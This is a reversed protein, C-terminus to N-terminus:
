SSSPQSRPHGRTVPAGGRGEGLAVTRQDVPGPELEVGSGASGAVPHDEVADEVLGVHEEVAGVETVGLAVEEGVGVLDRVEGAEARARSEGDLHGAGLRLVPAGLAVQGADELVPVAHVRRPVRAAQPAADADLPRTRHPDVAHPHQASVGFGLPGVDRDAGLEVAVLGAGDPDARGDVGGDLSLQLLGQSAPVLATSHVNPTSLGRRHHGATRPSWGRDVRSTATDTSWSGLWARDTRVPSRCTAICRQTSLTLPSRSNRFPTLAPGM